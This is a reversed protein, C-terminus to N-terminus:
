CYRPPHADEHRGLAESWIPVHTSHGSGSLTSLHESNRASFSVILERPPLDTQSIATVASIHRGSM